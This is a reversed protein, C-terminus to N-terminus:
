KMLYILPLLVIWLLDVMHWYAGGSEFTQVDKDTLNGNRAKKWLFALVVMGIILHLFHIGTFIYYYMFFDNTLMTIGANIKEGYELFKIIAFGAGCAFAGAILKPVINENGRRVAEVAMVVLWSSTLLFLTNIAAYNLNLKAQSETFLAPDLGRYYTFVCFFLAFVMMDGFVFVWIGAEGPIHSAKKAGKQNVAVEM